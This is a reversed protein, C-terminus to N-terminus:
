QESFTLAACFLAQSDGEGSIRAAVRLFAYDLTSAVDEYWGFATVDFTCGLNSIWTVGDYSGHLELTLTPDTGSINICTCTLVARNGHLALPESAVETAFDAADTLFQKAFVRYSTSRM